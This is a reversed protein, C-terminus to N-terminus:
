PRTGASHSPNEAAFRSIYLAYFEEIFGIPVGCVENVKPQLYNKAWISYIAPLDHVNEVNRYHKIEAQLRLTYDPDNLKM